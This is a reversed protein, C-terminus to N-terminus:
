AARRKEKDGLERGVDKKVNHSCVPCTPCHRAMLRQVESVTGCLYLQHRFYQCTPAEYEVNCPCDVGIWLEHEQNWFRVEAPRGCSECPNSEAFFARTERERELGWEFRSNGPSFYFEGDDDYGDKYDSM